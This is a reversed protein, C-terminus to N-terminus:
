KIKQGYGCCTSTRPWPDFELWLLSLAPDEVALGGPFVKLDNRKGGKKKGKIAAGPACPLKLDLVSDSGCSGAWAMAM